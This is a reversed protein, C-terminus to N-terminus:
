RIPGYDKLQDEIAKRDGVVVITFADTKLHKRATESVQASTVANVKQVWTKLYDDSLGQLELSALQGIIGQRTSNQLVFTGALYNQVARLEKEPPPEKQLRDIEFFIEELSAGTVATTVDANEAWYADRKRTSLQAFPSYTYGKQERINATIRSSFYGGLLTHTVQLPVWDPSGPPIVPAGLVLTSQVSGPRDVLHIERQSKPAPTPRQAPAGKRLGAFAERVAKEVAAQDFRGAVYLHAGAAGYTKEYFARAQALTYGQIQEPTPFMRGYPHDGYLAKRFAEQALPQPQSRAISLQRTLDGKLRELESAPFAPNTAVDAVLRLMDPAFESLVEGAITARDEGANVNLSGGMRAAETSIATANRSATGERVLRATLDALWTEAASEYANGSGLNLQVNVKPMAGYAVLTVELGNDLTFRVPTPLAFPKPPGPAPPQQKPPAAPVQALVPLALALSFLSALTRKM